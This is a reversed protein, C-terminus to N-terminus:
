EGDRQNNGKRLEDANALSQQLEEVKDLDAQPRDWGHSAFSGPCSDIATMEWTRVIPSFNGEKTLQQFKHDVVLKSWVPRGHDLSILSERESSIGKGDHGDDWHARVLAYREGDIEFLGRLTEHFPGVACPLYHADPGGGGDKVCGARSCQADVRLGPWTEGVATMRGTLEPWGLALADEMPDWTRWFCGAMPSAPGLFNQGFYVDRTAGRREARFGRYFLEGPVIVHEPIPGPPLATKPGKTGDDPNQLYPERRSHQGLILWGTNDDEFKLSPEYSVDLRFAHACDDPPAQWGLYAVSTQAATTSLGFPELLRDVAPKEYYTDPHADTCGGLVVSLTLLACTTWPPVACVIGSDPVATFIARFSAGRAGTM